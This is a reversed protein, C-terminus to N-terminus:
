RPNDFGAARYAAYLRQRIEETYDVGPKGGDGAITPIEGRHEERFGKRGVLLRDSEADDGRMLAALRDKEM